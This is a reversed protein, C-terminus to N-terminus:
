YLLGCLTYPDAQGEKLFGDAHSQNFYIIGFPKIPKSGKEGYDWYLHSKANPQYWITVRDYFGDEGIVSPDASPIRRFVEELKMPYKANWYAEFEPTVYQRWNDTDFPVYNQSVFRFADQVAALLKQKYPDPGMMNGWIINSIRQEIVAERDLVPAATEEPAPTLTPSSTHEPAPSLTPTKEPPRSLTKQVLSQLQLNPENGLYAECVGGDM